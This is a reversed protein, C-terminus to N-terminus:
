IPMGYTKFFQILFRAEKEASRVEKKFDGMFMPFIGFPEKKQIGYFVFEDLGAIKSYIWAQRPYDYEIAKKIFEDHTRCSTTKLDGGIKKKKIDLTGRILVGDIRNFVTLEREAGKLLKQLEKHESCSQEMNRVMTEEDNVLRKPELHPELVRKHLEKGVHLFRENGMYLPTGLLKRKIVSLGSNNIFEEPAPPGSVVKRAILYKQLYNEM